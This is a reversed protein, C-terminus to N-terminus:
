SILLCIYANGHVVSCHLVDGFGSFSHLSTLSCQRVECVRAYACGGHLHVDVAHWDVAGLVAAVLGQVALVDAAACYLTPLDRYVTFSHEFLKDLCAHTRTILTRMQAPNKPM